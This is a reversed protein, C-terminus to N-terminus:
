GIDDEDVVHMAAEEASSAYGAPGVDRAIEEAEDDQHAGEDPAVLRGARPQAASRDPDDPSVDPEEESLREDLSEGEREEFPTPAHRLNHPEREPPSYGTQMAEDPDDGSLSEVPDLGDTDDVADGSEYVSDGFVDNDTM